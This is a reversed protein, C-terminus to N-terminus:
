AYINDNISVNTTRLPLEETEATLVWFECDFMATLIVIIFPKCQAPFCINTNQKLLSNTKPMATMAVDSSTRLDTALSGGKDTASDGRGRQLNGDSGPVKGSSLLAVLALRQMIAPVVEGSILSSRNCLQRM